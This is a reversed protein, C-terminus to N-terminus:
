AGSDWRCQGLWVEEQGFQAEVMELGPGGGEPLGWILVVGGYYNM